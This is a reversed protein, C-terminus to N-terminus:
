FGRQQRDRDEQERRIRDMENNIVTRDHYDPQQEPTLKQTHPNNILHEQTTRRLFDDHSM